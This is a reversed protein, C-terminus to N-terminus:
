GLLLAIHEPQVAAAAYLCRVRYTSMGDGAIREFLMTLGSVPDTIPMQEINANAVQRPPRAVLVVSQRHLAVNATYSNGVTIADNDAEAAVLGPRNLAFSGGSLATGVVYKDSTGAFTVVDGALITGTGTDTAITTDGIALGSANNVLYGSGTGKTHAQVQGSIRMDFGSLTTLRGSDRITQVSGDNTITVLNRLHNAAATGLVMSVDSIPCGNDELIRLVANLDTIASAFPTTGATGAARSAGKYAVSAVHAEIDNAVARIAQETSQRMFEMANDGGGLLSQEEEAGLQWTSQKHNSLTLSVASATQATGATTTMAASYSSTSLAPTYPVKVVDGEAAGKDDFRADVAGIFGVRERSIVQAASFLAPALATLTNAM